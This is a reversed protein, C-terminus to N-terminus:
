GFLNYFIVKPAAPVTPSADQPEPPPPPDSDDSLEVDEPMPPSDNSRFCFFLKFNISISRKKFTRRRFLTTTMMMTKTKAQYVGIKAM